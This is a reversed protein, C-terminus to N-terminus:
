RAVLEGGGRKWEGVTQKQGDFRGDVKRRAREERKKKKKKGGGVGEGDGKDDYIPGVVSKALLARFPSSSEIGINREGRRHFCFSM